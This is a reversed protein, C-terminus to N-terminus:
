RTLQENFTSRNDLTNFGLLSSQKLALKSVRRSVSMVISIWRRWFAINTKGSPLLNVLWSLGQFSPWKPFPNGISIVEGKLRFDWRRKPLRKFRTSSVFYMAVGDIGTGQQSSIGEWGASKLRNKVKEWPPICTLKKSLLHM